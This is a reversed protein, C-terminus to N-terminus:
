KSTALEGCVLTKLTRWRWLSIGRQIRRALRAIGSESRPRCSRGTVPCARPCSTSGTVPLCLFYVMLKQIRTKTTWGGQSAMNAFKEWWHVRERLTAGPDFEGRTNSNIFLRLTLLTTGAQAQTAATLTMVEGPGTDESSISISDSRSDETDGGPDPAEGRRKEKRSTERGRESRRTDSKRPPDRRPTSARRTDTKVESVPAVQTVQTGTATTATADNRETKVRRTSTANSAHPPQQVSAVLRPATKLAPPYSMPTVRVGRADSRIVSGSVPYMTAVDPKVTNSVPNGTASDPYAVGRVEQDQSLTARLNRLNGARFRQMNQFSERERDREAEVDQVRHQLSEIQSIWDHKMEDAMRAREAAAEAERQRWRDAFESELRQNKANLSRREELDDARRHAELKANEFELLRDTLTLIERRAELDRHERRHEREM